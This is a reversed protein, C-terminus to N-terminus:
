ARPLRTWCRPVFEGQLDSLLRVLDRGAADCEDVLAVIKQHDGAALAGALEDV